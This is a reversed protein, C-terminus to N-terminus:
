LKWSKKRSSVVKEENLSFSRVGYDLVKEQGEAVGSYIWSSLVDDLYNILTIQLFLGGFYCPESCAVIFKGIVKEKYEDM